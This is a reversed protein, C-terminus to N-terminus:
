IQHQGTEAGTNEEQEVWLDRPLCVTHGVRGNIWKYKAAINEGGPRTHYSDDNMSFCCVTLEAINSFRHQKQMQLKKRHMM